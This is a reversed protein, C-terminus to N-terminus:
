RFCFAGPIVGVKSSDLAVGKPSYRYMVGRQVYDIADLVYLESTVPEVDLGYLLREKTTGRGVPIFPEAPIQRESVGMRWIHKNIYYITDRTGNIALDTPADGKTFLFTQEVRRTEADIRCLSPEEYGYSNGEYGGDTLVWLKGNADLVMSRPQIRVTISDIVSDTNSDLVLIQNDYMWCNTFILNKYAVLQETSHQPFPSATNAVDIRGTITYTKPNVITIAKAYLDTIYAKDDSIFHMHRPSTLGTIKGVIKFTRIDIAYVKGSNNVVIYGIGNRVVMSQAVDGLPIGNARYFVDNVMKKKDPIYYSLTSNGYMFNGENTVFIGKGDFYFDENQSVDDRM